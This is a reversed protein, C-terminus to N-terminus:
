LPRRALFLRYDGTPSEIRFLTSFALFFPFSLEVLIPWRSLRTYLACLRRIMGGCTPKWAIIQLGAQAILSPLNGDDFVMTETPRLYGLVPIHGLLYGGPKLVRCVDKLTEKVEPLYQLVEIAMVLDFSDSPFGELRAERDGLSFTMNERKLHDAIHQSEVIRDRDIDVATIEVDPFRGMYFSTCGTGSGLDLIKRSELLSWEKLVLRARLRGPFDVLGFTRVYCRQLRNWRPRWAYETGFLGAAGADGRDEKTAKRKSCTVQGGAAHTPHAEKIHLARESQM